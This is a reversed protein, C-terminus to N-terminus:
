ALLQGHILLGTLLSGANMVGSVLLAKPPRFGCLLRMVWAEALVALIELATLVAAYYRDGLFRVIGMLLLNLAPNTLLNCLASYYVYDRRRFWLAVIGGEILLTAALNGFLHGYIM